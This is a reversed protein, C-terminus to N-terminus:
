ADLLEGDIMGRIEEAFERVEEGATYDRSLLARCRSDIDCLTMIADHGLMAADHAARDEPLRFVLIAKM